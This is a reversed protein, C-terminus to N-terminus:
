APTGGRARVVHGPRVAARPGQRGPRRFGEEMGQFAQFFALADDFVEAGIVKSVTRVFAHAAVNVAKM